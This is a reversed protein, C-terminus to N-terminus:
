PTPHRALAPRARADPPGGMAAACIVPSAFGAAALPVALANYFFAWFLNQKIVRLTARALDLAEPVAAIESKLLIIDAADRAIDSARSVAIGLDAQALVQAADAAVPTQPTAPDGPWGTGPVVPSSFPQGSNPHVLVHVDQM